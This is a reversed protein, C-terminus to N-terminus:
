YEDFEVPSCLGAARIFQYDRLPSPPEPSLLKKSLNDRLCYVESAGVKMAERFLRRGKNALEQRKISSMARVGIGTVNHM